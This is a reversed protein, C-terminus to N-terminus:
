GGTSTDAVVVDMRHQDRSLRTFYLKDASASLWQGTLPRRPDRQINNPQPANAIQVTQDPFRDDKM